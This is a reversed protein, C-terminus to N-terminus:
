FKRFSYCFYPDMVYQMYISRLYKNVFHEGKFSMNNPVQESIQGCQKIFM